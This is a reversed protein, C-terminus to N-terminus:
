ENNYKECNTTIAIYRTLNLFGSIIYRLM